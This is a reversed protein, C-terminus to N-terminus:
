PTTRASRLMVLVKDLAASGGPSLDDGLGYWEGGAHIMKAKPSRGYLSQALAMLTEPAVHHTFQAAAEAPSLETETVAGPWLDRDADVFIVLDARSIPEALEPTLQHVALGGARLAALYGIGDDQRFPNGYGIVLIM